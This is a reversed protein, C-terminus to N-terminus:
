ATTSFPPRPERGARGRRQARVHQLGPGHRPSLGGLGRLPGFRFTGSTGSASACASITPTPAASTPARSDDSRGHRGAGGAGPHLLRRRARLHAHRAAAHPGAAELVQDPGARHEPQRGLALVEPLLQRDMGLRLPRHRFAQRGTFSPMYPWQLGHFTLWLSGYKLGRIQDPDEPYAYAPLRQVGSRPSPRRARRRCGACGSLQGTGAHRAGAGAYGARPFARQRRRGARRLSIRAAARRRPPRRRRRPHRAPPAATTRSPRGGRGRRRGFGGRLVFSPAVFDSNHSHAHRAMRYLTRM